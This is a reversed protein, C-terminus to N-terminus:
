LAAGLVITANYAVHALLCPLLSGTRFRLAATALGLLTIFAMAPWYHFAEGLHLLAFVATVLITSTTRSWKRAFGHLMVGRFLFEETPPALVIALLAFVIFGFSGSSALESMPGKPMDPDPPVIWMAVAAYALALLLGVAIGAASQGISARVFGINERFKVPTAARFLVHTALVAALLGGLGALLFLAENWCALSCPLGTAKNRVAKQHPNQWRMSSVENDLSSAMANNFAKKTGM